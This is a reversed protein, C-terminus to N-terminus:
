IHILSLEIIGKRVAQGASYGPYGANDTIIKLKRELCSPWTSQDSVEAGFTFSDGVALIRKNKYFDLNDVKKKIVKKM